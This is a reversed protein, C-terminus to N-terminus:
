VLVGAVPAPFGNAGRLPVKTAAFFLHPKHIQGSRIRQRRVGGLLLDGPIKEAKLVRVGGHNHAIGATQFAIQNEGYLHRLYDGFGHETHVHHVFRAVAAYFDVKSCKRRFCSQRRHANGCRPVFSKVFQLPLHYAKGFPPQVANKNRYSVRLRHFARRFAKSRHESFPVSDRANKGHELKEFILM